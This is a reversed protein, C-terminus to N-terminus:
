FDHPSILWEEWAARLQCLRTRTQGGSSQMECGRKGGPCPEVDRGSSPSLNSRTDGHAGNRLLFCFPRTAARPLVLWTSWPRHVHGARLLACVPRDEPPQLALLGPRLGRVQLHTRDSLAQGPCSGEPPQHQLSSNAGGAGRRQGLLYLCCSHAGDRNQVHQLWVTSGKTM